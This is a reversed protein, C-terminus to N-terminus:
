GNVFRCKCTLKATSLSENYKMEFQNQLAFLSDSSNRKGQQFCKVVVTDLRQYIYIHVYIYKRKVTITM